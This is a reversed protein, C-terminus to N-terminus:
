GDWDNEKRKIRRLVFTLEIIFALSFVIGVGLIILAIKEWWEMKTGGQSLLAHPRPVGLGM